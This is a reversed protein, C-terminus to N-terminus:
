KLAYVTPGRQELVVGGAVAMKIVGHYGHRDVPIQGQKAGSDPDVIELGNAVPILLKGGMLTGPGLAGQITWMPHLDTSSLAITSSGTFWYIAKTGTTTGSVGDAPPNSLDSDPLTLPYEAQHGGTADFTVLRAPNGTLVGELNGSITVLQHQDGGIATSFVQEPKDSDKPAAKLVTLRDGAEQPCRELVGIHGNNVAFSRLLCGSRPQSGPNVPDPVTGYQVTQVLDYRWVDILEHGVAAVHTGDTILRTGLEANDNRQPGRVGTSGDLATVESCNWTKRYVAIAKGWAANVTCLPLDRSYQWRVAGTVPDRGLVTSTDASVVSDGAIVPVSTAASAAHWVETLTRPVAAPNPLAGDPDVDVPAPATRSVTARADSYYWLATSAVLLAVLLLAGGAYDRNRRWRRAPDRAGAPEHQRGDATVLHAPADSQARHSNTGAAGAPRPVGAAEPVDAGPSGADGFRAPDFSSAAHADAPTSRAASGDPEAPEAAGPHAGSGVTPEQPRDAREM